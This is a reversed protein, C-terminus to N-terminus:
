FSSPGRVRVRLCGLTLITVRLACRGGGPAGPDEIGVADLVDLKEVTAPGLPFGLLPRQVDPRSGLRGSVDGHLRGIGGQAGAQGVYEGPGVGAPVAFIASGTFKLYEMLLDSKAMQMQMPIFQKGPDRVYAIFFLGADLRGLATTGDAFNLRAYWSMTRTTM